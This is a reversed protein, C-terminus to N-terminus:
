QIFVMRRDLVFGSDIIGMKQYSLIENNLTEFDLEGTKTANVWAAKNAIQPELKLKEGLIERAREKNNRIFDISKNWVVILKKLASNNNKILNNSVVTVGIAAPENLNAYIASYIEVAGFKQTLLTRLPEYAFSVDVDGSQLVGLHEPPLVPIMSIGTLDIGKDELFVKLASKATNGPFVAIKKGEIDKLTAISSNKAVLLGTFPSTKFIRAHSLIRAKLPRKLDAFGNIVDVTAVGPIYDIDGNVMSQILVSSSRQPYEKIELGEDEYFGEAVAVWHPLTPIIHPLIGVKIQEVEKKPIYFFITVSIAAIVSLLLVTLRRNM